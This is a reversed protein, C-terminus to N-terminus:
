RQADAILQEYEPAINNMYRFFSGLYRKLYNRSKKSLYDCAEIIRYLEEKQSQFDAFAQQLVAADHEFGLYVRERVSQIGLSAPLRVYHPDVFGSFDFDYPVLYYKGGDRPKLMKLNKLIRVSWDANGIMFQFLDLRVLYQQDFSDQPMSYCDECLKSDYRDALEKEDEIIIGYHTMTKGTASDTYKVEVLQTRYSISFLEHFLKYAVYERLLYDEGRWNGFCHTVLKLNNHKKLGREELDDKYFNIKLPPFDCTMRRYRGRVNLEIDWSERSGDAATFHFTAPFEEEDRRHAEVEKINFELEITKLTLGEEYLLDFATNTSDPASSLLVPFGLTLLLLTHFSHYHIM